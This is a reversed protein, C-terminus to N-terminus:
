AAKFGSRILRDLVIPVSVDLGTEISSRLLRQRRTLLLYAAVATTLIAAGVFFLETTTLGFHLSSYAPANSETRFPQRYFSHTARPLVTPVLASRNTAAM